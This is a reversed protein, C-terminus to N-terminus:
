GCSRTRSHVLYRPFRGALRYQGPDFREAHQYQPYAPDLVFEAVAGSNFSTGDRQRAEQRWFYSSVSTLTAFGLDDDITISPIFMTDRSPEAVQKQITNDGLTTIINPSDGLKARQGLM